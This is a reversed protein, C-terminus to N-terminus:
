LSSAHWGLPYSRRSDSLCTESIQDRDLEILNPPPANVSPIVFATAVMAYSNRRIDSATNAASWYTCSAMDLLAARMASTRRLLRGASACCSVASCIREARFLVPLDTDAYLALHPGEGACNHQQHEM